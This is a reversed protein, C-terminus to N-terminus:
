FAACCFLLCVHVSNTLATVKWLVPIHPFFATCAKRIPLMHFVGCPCSMIIRATRGGGGGGGGGGGRPYMAAGSICMFCELAAGWHM